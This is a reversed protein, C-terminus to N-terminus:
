KEKAKRCESCLGYFVTKSRDLLFDHEKAMHEALTIIEECDVHILKGCCLCKLHYNRDQKCCGCLQYCALSDKDIFFRNLRGERSMEELRRYVTSLGVRVGNGNLHEYIEAATVHRERNNELYEDIANKQKTNYAM